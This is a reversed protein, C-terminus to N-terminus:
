GERHAHLTALFPLLNIRLRGCILMVKELIAVVKRYIEWIKVGGLAPAQERIEAIYQRAFEEVALRRLAANDDHKYYAQKSAGLLKCVEIIRLDL